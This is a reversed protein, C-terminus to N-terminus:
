WAVESIMSNDRTGMREELRKDEREDYIFDDYFTLALADAKDPSRGLKQKTKDKPELALIGNEKIMYSLSSLEGILEDDDPLSIYPLKEQLRKYMEIRKNSMTNDISKRSVNAEFVPLGRSALVDYVGAGLGITDVFIAKPKIESENFEYSIFDALLMTDLNRRVLAPAVKYGVRKFLVSSDDGFRAVDLAWIHEGAKQVGERDVAELLEEVSFLADSSAKPFEGLVRVRYVDSDRGYQKVRLEVVGKDVNESKEANLVFTKFLDKNKHFNNFFHGSTRTPNGVEILRNHEGTLAGEIVEFINEAVGSAEDVLFWLNEAHFGQLAEPSEKRATRLVIFNGNTFDINDAKFDISEKFFSPLKLGWKKIEPMLTYLLQPSSPATIPVKADQKTLCVWLSIWSLLASKGTNRLVYGDPDLFRNNCDITFGYYDGVGLFMVKKIGIPKNNKICALRKKRDSKLYDSVQMEIIEKTSLHMLVLIHSKNFIHSKGDDYTFRYLEEQGRKLSLVCRRTLDDGMLNDGVEIDQVAKKSRDFMLIQTDKGFCGHGSRVAIRKEGCDIAEIIGQQQSTPKARLIHKTFLDLRQCIEALESLENPTAQYLM